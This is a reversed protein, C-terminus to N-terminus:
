AGLLKRLEVIASTKIRSVAQQNKGLASAIEKETKNLFFLQRIVYQQTNSLKEIVQDLEQRSVGFTDEKPTSDVQCIVGAETLSQVDNESKEDRAVNLIRNRCLHFVFKHQDEEPIEDIATINEFIRLYCEQTLDERDEKSSGKAYKMVAKAIVPKWQLIDEM